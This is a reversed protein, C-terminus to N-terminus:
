VIEFEMIIWHDCCSSMVQHTQFTRVEDSVDLEQSVMIKDKFRVFFLYTIAFMLILYKHPMQKKFLFPSYERSLGDVKWQSKTASPQSMEKASM